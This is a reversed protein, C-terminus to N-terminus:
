HFNRDVPAGAPFGARKRVLGRFRLGLNHLAVAPHACLAWERWLMGGLGPEGPFLSKFDAAMRDFERARFGPLSRRLEPPFGNPALGLGILLRCFVVAPGLFGGERALAAVRAMDPPAEGRVMLIADIVKRLAKAGFKDKAANSICLLFAHDPGPLSCTAGAIDVSVAADFLRNTTLSRHAPFCDPLIHLDIDCGGDASVFPFYSANSIMGWPKVPMPRFAFGKASLYEVLGPLESERVLIDLDGQMRLVPDPYFLHANAFGKMFVLDFGAGVLDAACRQQQALNFRAVLRSQALAEPAILGIGTRRCWPDLLFEALVPSVCQAFLDAARSLAATDAPPPTAEPDLICRWLLAGDPLVPTFDAV